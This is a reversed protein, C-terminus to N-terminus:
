WIGKDSGTIAQEVAAATALGPLLSLRLSNNLQGKLLLSKLETAYLGAADPVIPIRLFDRRFFVKELNFEAAATVYAPLDIGMGRYSQVYGSVITLYTAVGEWLGAESGLARLYGFDVAGSEVLCANDVVDCLRIYFHRYMRQLTSIIIREEPATVTYHHVGVQRKQTRAVLSDTLATQEGMQGLRRMHVEVLEPLGPVIFNWKNALRDGWSRPALKANFSASMMAIVHEPDASTYLDLDSGLDPWHDLSKIVAVQCGAREFATCIYELYNLAHDIRAVEQALANKVWEAAATQGVAELMRQLPTFCRMIVHNKNALDALGQLDREPNELFSQFCPTLAANSSHAGDGGTGLAFANTLSLESLLQLNRTSDRVHDM